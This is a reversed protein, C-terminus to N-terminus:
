LAAHDTLLRFSSSILYQRFHQVVWVMALSEGDYANYNREAANCSRSAFSVVFKQGTENKQSLVAGMGYQSLDTQLQFPQAYDPQILVQEFCLLQKLKHM